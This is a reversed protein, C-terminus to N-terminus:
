YASIFVNWCWIRCVWVYRKPQSWLTANSDAFVYYKCEKWNDTSLLAQTKSSPINISNWPNTNMNQELLLVLVQRNTHWTVWSHCSFCLMEQCPANKSINLIRKQDCKASDVGGTASIHLYRYCVISFWDHTDAEQNVDSIVGKDERDCM